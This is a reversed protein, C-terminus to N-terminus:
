DNSLLFFCRLLFLIEFGSTSVGWLLKGKLTVCFLKLTVYFTRLIRIELCLCGLFVGSCPVTVRGRIVASGDGTGVPGGTCGWSGTSNRRKCNLVGAMSACGGTCTECRAAWMWASLVLSLRLNECSYSTHWDTHSSETSRKSNKM